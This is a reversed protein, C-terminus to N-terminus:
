SKKINRVLIRYDAAAPNLSNKQFTTVTRRHFLFPEWETKEVEFGDEGKFIVQIDVWVDKDEENEMELKVVLLGGSSRAVGSKVVNLYYTLGHDLLVVKEKDQLPAKQTGPRYPGGCGSLWLLLTFIFITTIMFQRRMSFRVKKM